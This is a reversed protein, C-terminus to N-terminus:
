GSPLQALCSMTCSLSVLIAELQDTSVEAVGVHQQGPLYEKISEVFGKNTEQVPVATLPQLAERAHVGGVEQSDGAAIHTLPDLAQKANVGSAERGQLSTQTDTLPELAQRANVGQSDNSSSAGGGTITHSPTESTTYSPPHFVPPIGTSPLRTVPEDPNGAHAAPSAAQGQQTYGQTSGGSQAEFRQGQSATGSHGHHTHGTSQGDNYHSTNSDTGSSRSAGGRADGTSLGSDHQTVGGFRNTEQSHTNSLGAQSGGTGIHETGHRTGASSQWDSAKGPVSPEAGLRSQTGDQQSGQM